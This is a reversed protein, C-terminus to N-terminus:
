GGEGTEGSGDGDGADGAGPDASGSADAGSDAPESDSATDDAGTQETDDTMTSDDPFGDAALIAEADGAAIANIQDADLGFEDALGAIEDEPLDFTNAMAAVFAADVDFYDLNDFVYQQFDDLTAGELDEPTLEAALMDSIVADLLYPDFGAVLDFDLAALMELHDEEPVEIADTLVEEPFDEFLELEALEDATLIEADTWSDSEIQGADDLTATRGFGSPIVLTDDITVRGNLTTVRFTGDGRNRFIATSGLRFNAGNMTFDLQLNRPGQVTLSSPPVQACNPQGIGTQVVFTSASGGNQFQVDGVIVLTLLEGPLVGAVSGAAKIVAVGWTGTATDYPRSTISALQELNTLDAPRAFSAQAGPAFTADVQSFGYCAQNRGTAACNGGVQNLAQVVFDACQAQIAAASVALLGVLGGTVLSFRLQRSMSM